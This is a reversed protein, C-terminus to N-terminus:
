IGCSIGCIYIYVYCFCASVEYQYEVLTRGRLRTAMHFDCFCAIVFFQFVLSFLISHLPTSHLCPSRTSLGQSLGSGRAQGTLAAAEVSGPQTGRLAQSRSASAFRGGVAPAAMLFLPPLSPLPPLPPCCSGRPRFPPPLPPPAGAGGPGM